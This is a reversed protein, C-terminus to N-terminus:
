IDIGKDKLYRRMHKIGKLISMARAFESRCYREIDEDKDAVFYGKDVSCIFAGDARAESILERTKRDSLSLKSRLDYRTQANERGVPLLNMLEAIGTGERYEKM